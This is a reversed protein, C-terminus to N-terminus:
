CFCSVGLIRDFWPGPSAPTSRGDSVSDSSSDQTEDDQELYSLIFIMNILVRVGLIYGVPM